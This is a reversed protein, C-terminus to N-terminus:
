GRQYADEFRQIDDEGLYEGTQVEIVVLEETERNELRHSCGAPIYTSENAHLVGVMGDRTVTARGKVVVWHESRFRHAQLSIKGGPRIHLKKVQYEPSRDVVMFGGWPRHSFSTLHTDPVAAERMAGLLTKVEM